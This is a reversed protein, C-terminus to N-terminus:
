FRKVRQHCYPLKGTKEYYNQHYEEAPYFSTAPTLKTAVQIGTDRLQEILRKAVTQQAASLYFIESRYQEGIDPGQRNLQTPDHIEFFTKIITEYRVQEPDFIIEVAEAHGTLGSCVEEYTPETVPGGTYGSRVKVVGPIKKM